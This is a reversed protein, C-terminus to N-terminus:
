ALRRRADEVLRRTARGTRGAEEVFAEYGAVARAGRGALDHARAEWYLPDAWEPRARRAKRAAHLMLDTKGAGLREIMECLAAVFEILEDADKSHEFPAAAQYRQRIARDSRRQKRCALCRIAHSHISFQLTEYWYKQEAAGFVFTAGCQVCDRNEDLYAYRPSACCFTQRTLDGRIAGLPLKPTAQRDIAWGGPTNEDRILPVHGVVPFWLTPAGLAAARKPRQQKGTRAGRASQAM